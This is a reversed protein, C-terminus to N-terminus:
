KDNEMTTEVMGCRECRYGAWRGADDVVARLRHGILRCLDTVGFM